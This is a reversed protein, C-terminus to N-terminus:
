LCQSAECDLRTTCVKKQIKVAAVLVPPKVQVGGKVTKGVGPLWYCLQVKGYWHDNEAVRPAELVTALADWVPSVEGYIVLVTEPNEILKAM